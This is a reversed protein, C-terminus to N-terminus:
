WLVGCCLRGQCVCVQLLFCRLELAEAKDLLELAAAVEGARFAAGQKHPLPLPKGAVKCAYVQLALQLPGEVLAQAEHLMQLMTVTDQTLGDSFSPGASSTGPQGASGAAAQAAPYLDPDLMERLDQTPEPQEQLLVLCRMLLIHMSLLVKSGPAYTAKYQVTVFELQGVHLTGGLGGWLAAFHREAFTERHAPQQVPCSFSASVSPLTGTHRKHFIYCSCAKQVHTM